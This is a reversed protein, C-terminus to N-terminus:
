GLSAEAQWYGHLNCNEVIKVKSGEAKLHFTGSPNVGPSLSIRSVYSDDVYCDIFVILHAEEMPHLTEGIRVVVDTCSSEPILACSHKVTIKPTHKGGKDPNKELSDTFLKNNQEFNEKPVHCVPCFDPAKGFEVHGCVKCVFINM